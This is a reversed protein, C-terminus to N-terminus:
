DFVNPCGGYDNFAPNWRRVDNARRRRSHFFEMLCKGQKVQVLFTDFEKVKNYEPYETGEGWTLGGRADTYEKWFDEISLWSKSTDSWAQQINNDVKVDGHKPPESFAHLSLTLLLIASLNKM